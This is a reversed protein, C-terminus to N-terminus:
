SMSLSVINARNFPAYVEREFAFEVYCDMGAVLCKITVYYYKDEAKYIFLDQKSCPVRYSYLKVYTGGGNNHICSGDINGNYLKLNDANCLTFTSTLVFNSDPLYEKALGFAKEAFRHVAAYKLARERGLLIAGM